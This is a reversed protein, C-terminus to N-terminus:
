RLDVGLDPSVNEKITEMDFMNIKRISVTGNKTKNQIYYKGSIEGAISIFDEISLSEDVTTRFECDVLKRNLIRVSQMVKELLPDDFKDGVVRRYKMLTLPAKIDMAVYDILKEQILLDLMSPNTGNTDLKIKLGLQKIKKMFLPLIPHLTPEGGTFVVADLLQANKVLWNLLINENLGNREDAYDIDILQSNHCYNCRFNCGCTFIVASVHGPYDILSQKHFGGIPISTHKKM